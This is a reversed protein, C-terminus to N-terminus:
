VYGMLQNIKVVAIGNGRLAVGRLYPINEILLAYLAFFM